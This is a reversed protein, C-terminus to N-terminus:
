KEESFQVKERFSSSLVHFMTPIFLMSQFDRAMMKWNLYIARNNTLLGTLSISKLKIRQSGTDTRGGIRHTGKLM